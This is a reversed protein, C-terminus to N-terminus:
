KLEERLWKGCGANSYANVKEIVPVEYPHHRKVEEVMKKFKSNQTKAILMWEKASQIKNKWLFKSDIPFINACAILKKKLLHMAIKDSVEKTPNTIYVLIHKM